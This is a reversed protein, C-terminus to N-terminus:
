VSDKKKLHCLIDEEHNYFGDMYLLFKASFEQIIADIATIITLHVDNIHSKISDFGEGSFGDETIMQLMFDRIRACEGNWQNVNYSSLNCMDRLDDYNVNYSM